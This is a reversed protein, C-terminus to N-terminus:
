AKLEEPTLLKLGKESKEKEDKLLELRKIEEMQVKAEEITMQSLPDQALSLQHTNNMHNIIISPRIGQPMISNLPTPLPITFDPVFEPMTFKVKKVPPEEKAEETTTPELTTNIPQQEGQAPALVTNESGKNEQTSMKEGEPAAKASASTSDILIVLDNTTSDKSKELDVLEDIVKDTANEGDKSFNENHVSMTDDDTDKFSDILTIEIGDNIQSDDYKFTPVKKGVFKIESETNFPSEDAGLKADVGGFENLPIVWRNLGLIRWKGGRRSSPRGNSRSISRSGVIGLVRQITELPTFNDERHNRTHSDAVRLGVGKVTHDEIFSPCLDSKTLDFGVNEREVLAKGGLYLDHYVLGIIGKLSKSRWRLRATGM